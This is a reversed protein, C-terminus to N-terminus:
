RDPKCQQGREIFDAARARDERVKHNYIVRQHGIWQSLVNALRQSPYAPLRVGSQWPAPLSSSACPERDSV